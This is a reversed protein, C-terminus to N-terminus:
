LRAFVPNSLIVTIFVITSIPNVPKMLYRVFCFLFPIQKTLTLIPIQKAATRGSITSIICGEMQM